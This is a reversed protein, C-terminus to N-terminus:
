GKEIEGILKYNFGEVVQDHTHTCKITILHYDHLDDAFM